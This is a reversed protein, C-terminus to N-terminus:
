KINFPDSRTTQSNGTSGPQPVTSECPIKRGFVSYQTPKGGGSSLGRRLFLIALIHGVQIELLVLSSIYVFTLM